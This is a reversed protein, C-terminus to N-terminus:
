GVGKNLSPVTVPATSRVSSMTTTTRPSSTDRTLSTDSPPELVTDPKKPIQVLPVVHVTSRFWVCSTGYPSGKHTKAGPDHSFTKVTEDNRVTLSSPPTPTPVNSALSMDAAFTSVTPDLLVEIALTADPRPVRRRPLPQKTTTTLLPTTTCLIEITLVM